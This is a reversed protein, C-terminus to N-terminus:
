LRFDFQIMPLIFTTPTVNNLQTEFYFRTGVLIRNSEGLYFYIGPTFNFFGATTQGRYDTTIITNVPILYPLPFWEYDIDRPEFDLLTQVSYGVNLFLNVIWDQYATNITLNMYPDINMSNDIDHYFLVYEESGGFIDEEKINALTYVDYDISQFHLGIDVRLAIGKNESFLGLGGSGGWSTKSGQSSYNVGLSIAFGKALLLDFNLGATVTSILWTFNEGTFSYRNAGPTERYIIESGNYFTDVQFIGDENVLSHGDIHGGMSKKTSYSFWPSITVSPTETSDTLHVTTQNIPGRVEANQVYLTQTTTCGILFFLVIIQIFFIISVFLRM